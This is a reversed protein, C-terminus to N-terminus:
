YENRSGPNNLIVYGLNSELDIVGTIQLGWEDNGRLRSDLCHEIKFISILAALKLM